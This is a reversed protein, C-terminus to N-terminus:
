RGSVNHFFRALPTPVIVPVPYAEATADGFARLKEIYHANLATGNNLLPVEAAGPPPYAGVLIDAPSLARTTKTLTRCPQLSVTLSVM